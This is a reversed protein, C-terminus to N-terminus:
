ILHLVVWRLNTKWAVNLMYCTDQSCIDTNFLHHTWHMWAQVPCDCQPFHFHTRAAVPLKRRWCISYQHCLRARIIAKAQWGCYFTNTTLGPKQLLESDGNLFYGRWRWSTTTILLCFFDFFCHCNIFYKRCAVQLSVVWTPFKHTSHTANFHVLQSFYTILPWVQNRTCIWSWSPWYHIRVWCVSILSM